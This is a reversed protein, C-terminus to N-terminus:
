NDRVTPTYGLIRVLTTAVSMQAHMDITARVYTLHQEGGCVEGIQYTNPLADFLEQAKSVLSRHARIADITLAELDALSLGRMLGILPRLEVNGEANTDNIEM